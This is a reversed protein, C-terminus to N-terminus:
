SPQRAFKRGGEFFIQGCVIEDAIAFLIATVERLRNVLLKGPLFIRAWNTSSFTGAAGGGAVGSKAPTVRGRREPPFRHEGM